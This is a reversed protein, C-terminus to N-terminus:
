IAKMRRLENYLEPHIRYEGRTKQTIVIKNQHKRPIKSKKATLHNKRVWKLWKEGYYTLRTITMNLARIYVKNLQIKEGNM